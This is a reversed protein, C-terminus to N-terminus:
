YGFSLGKLLIANNIVVKDGVVLGGKVQVYTGNDLGLVLERREYTAPGVQVFAYSKAEASVVSPLPIVLGQETREEIRVRAYMGPKIRGQQSALSIGVRVTRTQPDIADGVETIHGTFKEGPFSNFEFHATEGVGVTPALLEPVDAILLVTGPELGQLKAPALGAQRLKAEADRLTAESQRYDTEADGLDKGSVADRKMLERLRQVQTGSREFTARASTYSSYMQSLDATEFLILPTPLDAAPVAAAVTRAPVNLVIPFAQRVVPQVPFQAAQEAPVTVRDGSAVGARGSAAGPVPAEPKACAGLAWSAILMALPVFTRAVRPRILVIV